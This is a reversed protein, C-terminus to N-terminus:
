DASANNAVDVLNQYEPLLSVQAIQIMTGHMKTVACALAAARDADSVNITADAGTGNTVKMVEEGLKGKEQRADVLIDAGSDKALKLGEDRADIGVVVLGLAKAFQCGLHGLGGGAGVLAVTEGKTLETQLVGRFVTCGACALPAATEFSVKDPLVCSERGDVIMYEAFAGDLTVGLHGLINPCYHRYNEPGLCNPCHGCRNRPLGAM